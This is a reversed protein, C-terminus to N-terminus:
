EDGGEKANQAAIAQAAGSVGPVTQSQLFSIRSSNTTVATASGKNIIPKNPPIPPPVRAANAAGFQGKKVPPQPSPSAAQVSHARIITAVNSGVSMASSSDQRLVQGPSISRAIGTASFSEFQVFVNSLFSKVIM